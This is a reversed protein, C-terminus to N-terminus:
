KPLLLRLGMPMCVISGFTARIREKALMVLREGIYYRTDPGISYVGLSLPWM